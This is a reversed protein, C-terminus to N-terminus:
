VSSTMALGYIGAAVLCVCSSYGERLNQQQSSVVSVCLARLETLNRQTRRSETTLDGNVVQPFIGDVLTTV